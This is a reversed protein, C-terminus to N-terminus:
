RASRRCPHLLKSGPCATSAAFSSYAAHLPTIWTRHAGRMTRSQEATSTRMQHRHSSTTPILASGRDSALLDSQSIWLSAPMTLGSHYVQSIKLIRAKTM